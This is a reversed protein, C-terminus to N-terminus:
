ENGYERAKKLLKKNYLGFMGALLLTILVPTVAILAVAFLLFLRNYEKEIDYNIKELNNKYREIDRQLQEIEKIRKVSSLEAFKMENNLASLKRQASLLKKGYNNKAEAFKKEAKEQLLNQWNEQYGAAQKLPVSVYDASTMYDLANLLLQLNDSVFVDGYIDHNKAHNANWLSEGLMDSDAVVLLKGEKLPVSLFPLNKAIIEPTDIIPADFMSSFKGEVLVALPYKQQTQKYHEFLTNYDISSIKEAPLVGSNESTTFLVKTDLDPKSEYKFFGSHNLRLSKINETIKHSTLNEKTVVVRLPYKIKRGDLVADRNNENDGVVLNSSYRIGSNELFKDMGSVYSIYEFEDEDAFRNESFADLLVIIKGGRMLYQDLAYVTLSDLSLPYFVIVADFNPNIGGSINDLAILNYGSKRLRDAFPWEGSMGFYTYKTVADFFPSIVAINKNNNVTLQSLNRTILNEIYNFDDFRFKPITILKGNENALVMGFYAYKEGNPYLFEKIGAKEAEAQTDAFPKIKVFSFKVKGHGEKEYDEALKIIRALYIKWRVDKVALDEAAYIRIFLNQTNKDLFEKTQESLSYVRDATVDIGKADFLLNGIVGATVSVIVIGIIFMLMILKESWKLM